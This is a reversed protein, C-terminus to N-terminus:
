YLFVARSISYKQLIFYLKFSKWPPTQYIIFLVFFYKIFNYIMKQNKKYLFLNVFSNDKKKM